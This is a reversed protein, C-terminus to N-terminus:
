RNSLQRIEDFWEEYVDQATKTKSHTFTKEYGFDSEFKGTKPYYVLKLTTPVEREDNAFLTEIKELLENGLDLLDWENDLNYQEKSVRNVEHTEVLKENIRYFPKYFYGSEILGIVYVADVEKSNNNVYEFAIGVMETFLAQYENDFNENM